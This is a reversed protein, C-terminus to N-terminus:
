KIKSGCNPCYSYIKGQFDNGCEPCFKYHKETKLKSPTDSEIPHINTAKKDIENSSIMSRESRKKLFLSLIVVVGGAIGFTNPIIFHSLYATLIPSLFLYFIGLGIPGGVSIWSLVMLKTRENVLTRKQNKIHVASVIMIIGFTINNITLILMGFFMIIDSHLGIIPAFFQILCLIGGM